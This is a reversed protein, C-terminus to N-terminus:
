WKHGDLRADMSVFQFPLPSFNKKGTMLIQLENYCCAPHFTHFVRWLPFKKSFIPLPQGSIAMYPPHKEVIRTHLFLSIKQEAGRQKGTAGWIHPLSSRLIGPIPTPSAPSEVVWGWKEVTKGKRDV